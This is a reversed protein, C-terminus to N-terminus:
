SSMAPLSFCVVTETILEAAPSRPIRICLVRIARGTCARFGVVEGELHSKMTLRGFRKVLSGSKWVFLGSMRVWSRKDAHCLPFSSAARPVPTVLGTSCEGQEGWARKGSASIGRGDGWCLGGM